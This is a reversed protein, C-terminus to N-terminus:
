GPQTRESTELRYGLRASIDDATARLHPGLASVLETIGIATQPALLDIAAIM